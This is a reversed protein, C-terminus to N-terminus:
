KLLLYDFDIWDSEADDGFSFQHIVRHHRLVHYTRTWEKQESEWTSLQLWNSSELALELMVRRHTISILGDKNYGDHVPSM